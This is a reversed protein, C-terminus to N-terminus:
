GYCKGIAEEPQRSCKAMFRLVCLVTKETASDYSGACGIGPSLVFRLKGGRTKKDSRMAEVIERPSV